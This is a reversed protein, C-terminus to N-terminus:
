IRALSLPSYLATFCFCPLQLAGDSWTVLQKDAHGQAMDEERIDVVRNRSMSGCRLPALILQSCLPNHFSAAIADARSLLLQIHLGVEKEAEVVRFM